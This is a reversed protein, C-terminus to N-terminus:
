IIGNEKFEEVLDFTQAVETMEKEWEAIEEWSLDQESVWNQWEQAYARAEEQTKIERKEM